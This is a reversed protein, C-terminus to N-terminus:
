APGIGNGVDHPRRTSSSMSLRSRGTARSSSIWVPTRRRKAKRGRGGRWVDPTCFLARWSACLRFSIRRASIAPSSTLADHRVHRAARIACDETGTGSNRGEARQIAKQFSGSSQPETADRHWEDAGVSPPVSTKSAQQNM